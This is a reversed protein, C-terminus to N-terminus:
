KGEKTTSVYKIDQAVRNALKPKKNHDLRYLEALKELTKRAGYKAIAKDLAAKKKKEPLVIHYGLETLSGPNRIGIGTLDEIEKPTMTKEIGRQQQRKEKIPYVKRNVGKGKSRYVTM